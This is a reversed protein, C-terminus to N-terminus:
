STVQAELASSTATTLQGLSPLRDGLGDIETDVTTAHAEWAAPADTYTTLKAAYAGLAKAAPELYGGGNTHVPAEYASSLNLPQDRLAVYALDAVTRAGTTTQKGNPVTTFFARAWATAAVFAADRGIQTALASVNISSYRYFTGTSYSASGLHASGTGETLDDVATFFDFEPIGEHVTFAHAVQTLGYVTHDPRDALMRGLMTITPSRRNLVTRVDNTLPEVVAQVDKKSPAKVKGKADTEPLPLDRVTDAHKEALDALDDAIMPVWLLVNTDDDAADPELGYAYVMARGARRADNDSWGREVMRAAVETAIRRTRVTPEGLADEVALRIPRKWSQSSVRVREVGGYVCSKPSGLDDRNVNNYPLTHLAYFDLHM